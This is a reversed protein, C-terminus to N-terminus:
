RIIVAKGSKTEGDARILYLYVGPAVHAGDSNTLNWLYEYVWKHDASRTINLTIDSKPVKRVLDASLTYLNLSYDQAPRTLQFQITTNGEGSPHSYGKGAPNPYNVLKSISQGASVALAAVTFSATAGGVGSINLISVGSPDGDFNDSQPTIFIDGNTFANGANGGSAPSNGNATVLSIGYHPVGTNITNAQSPIAANLGRASTIADDIHWILLGDGPISKDYTGPSSRSRYEVLFYEQSLGNPINIRLMGTANTEVYPLSASQDDTAVTPTVWGLAAKSWASLHSPNAGNGVFPGSDMLEWDGVVSSGGVLTTNYLDPLGLEHGFEHCMVGLASTIGSSETEPFVAGQTFAAAAVTANVPNTGAIANDQSYFISWIDGPTSVTTENGNGAHLVVVADFTGGNNSSTPGGTDTRARNIADAILYNGNANVFATPTTVGSCGVGEDGCGYYEMPQLMTYAGAAVATADGTAGVTNEGFFRFNLTMAGYSVEAFYAAMQSFRTNVDNINLISRSGSILSANGAPFQVVIVAVNKGGTAGGLIAARMSGMSRVRSAPPRGIDDQAANPYVGPKIHRVAEASSCLLCVSVLFSLIRKLM